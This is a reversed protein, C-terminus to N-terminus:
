LLFGNLIYTHMTKKVDGIDESEWRHGKCDKRQGKVPEVRGNHRPNRRDTFNNLGFILCLTHRSLSHKTCHVPTYFAFRKWILKQVSTPVVLRRKLSQNTEKREGIKRQNKRRKSYFGNRHSIQPAWPSKYSSTQRRTKRANHLRISTSQIVNWLLEGCKMVEINSATVLGRQFM